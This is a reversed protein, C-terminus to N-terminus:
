PAHRGVQGEVDREVLEGQATGVEEGGLVSGGGAEGLRREVDRGGDVGEAAGAPQVVEGEAEEGAGGEVGVGAGEVEGALVEVFREGDGGAAAETEMRAVGVEAM